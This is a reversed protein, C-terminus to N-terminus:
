ALDCYWFGDRLEPAFVTVPVPHAFRPGAHVFTHFEGREGCPDVGPPLEALFGADFSRGCFRAELKEPDACVVVAEHGRRLLDLAVDGTDRGWLPYRGRMGRAALLPERFARVDELFLDGFVIEEVGDRALAELAVGLRAAYIENSPRSPLLMEVVRIGLASAQAAVLDRRVGHMVVRESEETVSILLAVVAIGPEDLLLDLALACDKGGSWSVALRTPPLSPLELELTQTEALPLAESM